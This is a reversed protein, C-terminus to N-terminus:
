ICLAGAHHAGLDSGQLCYVSGAAPGAWCILARRVAKGATVLAVAAPVELAFFVTGVRWGCVSAVATHAMEFSEALLPASTPKSFRKSFPRGHFPLLALVARAEVATGAKRQYQKPAPLAVPFLRAMRQFVYAKLNELGQLRDQEVGEAYLPLIQRRRFFTAM